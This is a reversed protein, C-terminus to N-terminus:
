KYNFRKFDEEYYWRLFEKDDKTLVLTHKTEHVHPLEDKIKLKRRVKKWVKDLDEFKGIYNIKEDIYYSQPKKAIDPVNRSSLVDEVGGKVNYHAHISCFRDFPHRVIAFKWRKKWEKEGIQERLWSAPRHGGGQQLVHNFSGCANKPIQVYIGKYKSWMM